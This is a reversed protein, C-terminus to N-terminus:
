TKEAWNASGSKEPKQKEDIKTINAKLKRLFRQLRNRVSLTTALNSDVILDNFQKM